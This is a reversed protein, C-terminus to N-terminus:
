IKRVDITVGGEIPKFGCTVEEEKIAWEGAVKKLQEIPVHITRPCKEDAGFKEKVKKPVTFQLGGIDIGNPKFPWSIKAVFSVGRITAYANYKATHGHTSMGHSAERSAKLAKQVTSKLPSRMKKRLAASAWKYAHLDSDKLHRADKM